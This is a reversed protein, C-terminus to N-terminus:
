LPQIEIASIQLPRQQEAKLEQLAQLTQPSKALLGDDKQIVAPFTDLKPMQQTRTALQPRVQIDARPQPAIRNAPPLRGPKKTAMEVHSSDNAKPRSAVPAAATAIEPATPSPEPRPQIILAFCAALGAASLGLGLQRRRSRIQQDHVRSLTRQEMGLPLKPRVQDKLVADLLRDFESPNM